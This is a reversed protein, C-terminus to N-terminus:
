TPPLLRSGPVPVRLVRSGGTEEHFAWIGAELSRLLSPAEHPNLCRGSSSTLPARPLGWLPLWPRSPAQHAESGPPARSSQRQLYRARPLLKEGATRVRHQGLHPPHSECRHRHWMTDWAQCRVYYM